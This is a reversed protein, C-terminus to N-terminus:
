ENGEKIKNWCIGCFYKLVKDENYIRSCAYRMADSVVEVGLEKIFKKVSAKFRESFVYDFSDYYINEVYELDENLQKEQKKFLRRFESYQAQAIKALEIKKSTSDPLSSLDINSKGRNCDFCATILNDIDNTGGKSVAIIHDIELPVKPPKAACYQCKFGDRKLVEFRLRKSITKRM